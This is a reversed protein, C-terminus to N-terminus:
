GRTALQSKLTANEDELPTYKRGAEALSDSRTKEIGAQREQETYTRPTTKSTGPQPAESPLRKEPLTDQIGKKTEDPM